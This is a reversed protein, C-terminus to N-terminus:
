GSNILSILKIWTTGATAQSEDYTYDRGYLAILSQDNLLTHRSQKFSQPDNFFPTDALATHMRGTAHTLRYLADYVYDQEPEVPGTNTFVRNHSDDRIRVIDVDFGDFSTVGGCVDARPASVPEDDLDDDRDLDDDWARSRGGVESRLGPIM